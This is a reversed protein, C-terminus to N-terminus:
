FTSAMATCTATTGSLTTTPATAASGPLTVENPNGEDGLVLDADSNVTAAYTIRLTCGSFGSNVMTDAPYVLKSTNIERLGAETMSITMIESSNEGDAYSVQFM